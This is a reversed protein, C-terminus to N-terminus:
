FGVWKAVAGATANAILRATTPAGRQDSVVALQDRAEGLRLMKLLFNGGRPGYVWATRLVIAQCGSALVAQEGALKSRGYAGVPGTPDGERYPQTANGPFVYDTSYHVLLAGHAACWRALVGPAIGNIATAVSEEQEAKDVATYAAANVVVDPMVQDLLAVLGHLDALDLAHAATGDPRVGSRCAAEVKGLPAMSSLLAEGVQGTAGTVLIKM